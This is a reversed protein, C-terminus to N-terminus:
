SKWKDRAKDFKLEIKTTMLPPEKRLFVLFEQMILEFITLFIIKIKSMSQIDKLGKFPLFKYALFRRDIKNIKHKRM